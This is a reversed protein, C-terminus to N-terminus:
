VGAGVRRPLARLRAAGGSARMVPLSQLRREGDASRLTRRRRHPVLRQLRRVVSRQRKDGDALSESPSRQVPAAQAAPQAGPPAAVRQDHEAGALGAGARAATPPRAAEEGGLESARPARGRDGRGPSRQHGLSDDARHARARSLEARARPWIARVCSTGPRPSIGFRECLETMSDEQALLAGIFRMRKDIPCVERWPM